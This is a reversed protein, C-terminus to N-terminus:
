WDLWYKVTGFGHLWRHHRLAARKGAPHQELQCKKALMKDGPVTWDFRRRFDPTTVRNVMFTYLVTKKGNNRLVITLVTSYVCQALSRPKIRRQAGRARNSSQRSSAPACVSGADAGAPTQVFLDYLGSRACHIRPPGVPRLYGNWEQNTAGLGKVMQNADDVRTVRDTVSFGSFQDVNETTLRLLAVDGFM